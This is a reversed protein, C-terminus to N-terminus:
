RTFIKTVQDSIEITLLDSLDRITTTVSSCVDRRDILANNASLCVDSMWTSAFVNSGDDDFYYILLMAVIM